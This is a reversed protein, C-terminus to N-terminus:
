SSAVIRLDHAMQKAESSSNYLFFDHSYDDPSYLMVQSSHTQGGDSAIMVHSASQAADVQAQSGRLGVFTAHSGTTFKSLWTRIVPGTDHKVDTSVFVVVIKRQLANPLERVAVGIDAMTQPCVDACRTYGFFLLTPRGQTRQGFSYAHGATDTLVFQPRPLAPSVGVGDYKGGSHDTLDSPASSHTVDGNASTCGALAFAAAVLLAVVALLRRRM